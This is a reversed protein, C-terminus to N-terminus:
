ARAMSTGSYDAYGGGIVSSYIHGGPATVEPKVSLDDTTGWSSFDSMTYNPSNYEKHEIADSITIKGVYYTYETPELGVVEDGEFVASYANFTGSATANDKFYQGDDMQVLVAPETYLYGTLNM